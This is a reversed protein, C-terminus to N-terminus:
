YASPQLFGCDNKKALKSEHWTVVVDVGVIPIVRIVCILVGIWVFM